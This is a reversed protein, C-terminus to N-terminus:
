GIDAQEDKEDSNTVPASNTTYTGSRRLLHWKYHLLHNAELHLRTGEITDAQSLSCSGYRRFSAKTDVAYFGSPKVLHEPKSVTLNGHRVRYM